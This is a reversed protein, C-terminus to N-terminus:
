CACCADRPLPLPTSCRLMCSGRAECYVNRRSVDWGSWLAPGQLRAALALALAPCLVQARTCSAAVRARGDAPVVGARNCSVGRGRPLLLGPLLASTLHTRPVRVAALAALAWAGRAEVHLARALRQEEAAPLTCLLRLLRRAPCHVMDGAAGARM